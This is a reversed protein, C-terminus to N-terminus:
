LACRGAESPVVTAVARRRCPAPPFRVPTWRSTEARARRRRKLTTETGVPSPQRRDAEVACNPDPRELEVVDDGDGVIAERLEAGVFAALIEVVV